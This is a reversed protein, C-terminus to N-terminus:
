RRWWRSIFAGALFSKRKDLCFYYITLNYILIILWFYMLDTSSSQLIRQSFDFHPKAIFFQLIIFFSVHLCNIWITIVISVAMLEVTRTCLQMAAQRGLPYIIFSFQLRDGRGSGGCPSDRCWPHRGHIHQDAASITVTGSDGVIRPSNLKGIFHFAMVIKKKM